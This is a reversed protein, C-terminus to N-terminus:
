IETYPLIVRFHRMPLFRKRIVSTEMLKPSFGDLLTHARVHMCHVCACITRHLACALACMFLLYGVSLSTVIKKAFVDLFTRVCVHACTRADVRMTHERLRASLFLNHRARKQSGLFTEVLKPSYINLLTCICAHTFHVGTGLACMCIFYGMCSETVRLSNGCLKLRIRAVTHFCM